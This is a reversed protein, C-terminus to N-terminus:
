GGLAESVALQMEALRAERWLNARTDLEEAMLLLTISVAVLTATGITLARPHEHVYEIVRDPVRVAIKTGLSM